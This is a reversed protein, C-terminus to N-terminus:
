RRPEITDFQGRHKAPLSNMGNRLRQRLDNRKDTKSEVEFADVRGDRRVGIIDPIKRSKGVRGTATRWARQLTIYEYEGSRAMDRAKAEMTKDHGPTTSASSTQGWIVVDNGRNDKVTRKPMAKREIVSLGSGTANGSSYSSSSSSSSPDNLKDLLQDSEKDAMELVTCGAGIALAAVLAIGALVTWARRTLRVIRPAAIATMLAQRYM